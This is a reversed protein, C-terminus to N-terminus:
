SVDRQRCCDSDSRFSPWARRDRIELSAEVPECKGSYDAVVALIPTRGPAAGGGALRDTRSGATEFCVSRDQSCPQAHEPNFTRNEITAIWLSDVLLRDGAEQRRKVRKGRPEGHERRREAM